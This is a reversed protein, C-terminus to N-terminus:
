PRRNRVLERVERGVGFSPGGVLDWARYVGIVFCAVVLMAITTVLDERGPAGNLRVGTTLQYAFVVALGVLFVAEHVRRSRLVRLRALSLLTALVFLLGAAAVVTAALGPREGPILAFLSVTLANMFSMLAAAARVRHLPANEEDDAFRPESVTLVVFLLGILAGAVGAGAVFFDAM